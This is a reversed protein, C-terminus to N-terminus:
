SESQSVATAVATGAQCIFRWYPDSQKVEEYLSASEDDTSEFGNTSRSASRSRRDRRESATTYVSGSGSGSGGAGEVSSERSVRDVSANLRLPAPAIGDNEADAVNIPSSTRHNQFDEGDIADAEVQRGGRRHSPGPKM